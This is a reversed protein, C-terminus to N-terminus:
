GSSAIARTTSFFTHIFLYYLSITDVYLLFQRTNQHQLKSVHGTHLCAYREKIRHFTLVRFLHIFKM